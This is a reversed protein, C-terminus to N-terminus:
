GATRLWVATDTPLLGADLPDSVLMVEEHPPLAVPGDSMNVVCAFEDGRAFALVDPDSPVWAMPGDGLGPTTRRQRLADRYLSLMSEDRGVQAAVTLGKWDAPQPLWPPASGDPSFGFPPEDGSWPMPVRCGDRVGDLHGSREWMPDQRLEDPIDEVESLGLEDGQYVYVGGPLALTLL